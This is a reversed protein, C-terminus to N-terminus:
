YYNSPQFQLENFEFQNTQRMQYYVLYADGYVMSLGNENQTKIQRAFKSNSKMKGKEEQKGVLIRFITM